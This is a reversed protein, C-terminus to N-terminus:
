YAKDANDDKNCYHVKSSGMGKHFYMDSVDTGRVDINKKDYAAKAEDTWEVKTVKPKNNNLTTGSAELVLQCGPSLFVHQNKTDGGGIHIELRYSCPAPLIYVGYETVRLDMTNDERLDKCNPNQDWKQTGVDTVDVKNIYYNSTAGAIVLAGCPNPDGNAQTDTCYDATNTYRKSKAVAPGSLLATALLASFTVIVTLRAQSRISSVSRM